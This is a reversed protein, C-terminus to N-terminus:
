RSDVASQGSKAAARVAAIYERVLDDSEVEFKSHHQDVYDVARVFSQLTSSDLDSEEAHHALSMLLSSMFGWDDKSDDSEM